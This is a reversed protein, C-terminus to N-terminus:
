SAARSWATMRRERAEPPLSSNGVIEALDQPIVDAIGPHQPQSRSGFFPPPGASRHFNRSKPPPQGSARGSSWRRIGVLWRRCRRDLARGVRYVFTLRGEDLSESFRPAWHAGRNANRKVRVHITWRPELVMPPDAVLTILHCV